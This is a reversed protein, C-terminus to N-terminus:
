GAIRYNAAVIRCLQGVYSQQSRHRFLLGCCRGSEWYHPLMALAPTSKLDLWRTLVFAGLYLGGAASLPTIGLGFLVAPLKKPESM